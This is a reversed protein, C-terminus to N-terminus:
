IKIFLSICCIYKIIQVGGLTTQILVKHSIGKSKFWLPMQEVIEKELVAVLKLDIAAATFSKVLKIATELEQCDITLSYWDRKIDTALTLSTIIGNTGYAHNLSESKQTDLKLLKPTANVSVAEMCILNGPDRLFGWKVSGIGGSGGSIFGGISATKWTSPLLRLERGNKALENNLDSMLCGSQVKVFGTEPYYKEVKNLYNLQMVVGNNLPVAQGYNGTGGGRLTLSVDFKWCTEAVAIISDLNKPRVVVNAICGDLIEKLVPSYNYFDKSLRKLDSPNELVELCDITKLHAILKKTKNSM